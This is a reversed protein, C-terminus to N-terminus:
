AFSVATKRRRMSVGVLGLGGIMMAWTAPEPVATVSVGDLAPGYFAGPTTSAFTLTTSLGTATFLYTKSEWGMAARSIGATSFSYGVTSGGTASVDLTKLTPAGDPNGSLLFKVTYTMGIVTDFTQAITGISNGNLDISRSGEGPQWHSGIYDISGGTVTWGTIAASPASLTTFGGPNPGIEFGGNTFATANAATPLAALAALALVFKKM